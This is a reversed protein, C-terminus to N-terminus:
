WPRIKCLRVMAKTGGRWRGGGGGWGWELENSTEQIAGKTM